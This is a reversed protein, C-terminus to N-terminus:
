HWASAWVQSLLFPSQTSPHSSLCGGAGLARQAAEGERRWFSVISKFELHPFKRHLQAVRRLSSTGVVSSLCLASFSICGSASM